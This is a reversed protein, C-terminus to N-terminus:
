EPQEEDQIVEDGYRLASRCLDDRGVVKFYNKFYRVYRISLDKAFEVAAVDLTFTIKETGIDRKHLQQTIYEQASKWIRHMQADTVADEASFLTGESRSKVEIFAIRNKRKAIIDLEGFNTKYNRELIFFHRKKLQQCVYEEGMYGLLIHRAKENM